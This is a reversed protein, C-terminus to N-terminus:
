RQKIRQLFHDDAKEVLDFLGFFAGNQQVRVPFAFNGPVGAKAFTEFAMVLRLYAKDAMTTLTDYRLDIEAQGATAVEHHHKEIMIGMKQMEDVMESRIDQQTDIPPVPFYGEKHRPKNGLNFGEKGSNWIGEDSDIFYYGSNSTQDYRANDFIFFEAEPGWYSVDGITFVTGRLPPYQGSRLLRVESTPCLSM